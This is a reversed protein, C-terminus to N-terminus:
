FLRIVFILICSNLIGSVSVGEYGKYLFRWVRFFGDCVCFNYFVLKKVVM